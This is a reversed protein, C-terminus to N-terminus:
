PIDVIGIDEGCSDSVDYTFNKARFTPKVESKNFGKRIKQNVISIDIFKKFPLGSEINPLRL